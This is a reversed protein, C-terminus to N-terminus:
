EGSRRSRGVFGSRTRRLLSSTLARSLYIQDTAHENGVPPAERRPKPPLGLAPPETLGQTPGDASHPFSRSYAVAVSGLLLSLILDALLRRKM